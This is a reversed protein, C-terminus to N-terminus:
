GDRKGRQLELSCPTDCYDVVLRDIIRRFVEPVILYTISGM